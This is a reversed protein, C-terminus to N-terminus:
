AAVDSRGMSELVAVQAHYGAILSQVTNSDGTFSGDQLQSLSAALKPKLDNYSAWQGM